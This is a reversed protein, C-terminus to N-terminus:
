WNGCLLTMDRIIMVIWIKACCFLFIGSHNNVGDAVALEALECYLAVVVVTVVVVVVVIAFSKVKSLRWFLGDSLEAISFYAAFRITM